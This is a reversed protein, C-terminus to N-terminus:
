SNGGMVPGSAEISHESADEVSHEIREEISSALEVFQQRYQPMRLSFPVGGAYHEAIERSFPIRMLVPIGNERCYRDVGEDGIDSRNLVVGFPIGLIRLVGVAARLDSLGFPTPETVLLCYESGKVAAVVPCSTGPPADIIVTRDAQLEQRVQRVLPPAMAEGINLRGDAFLMDGAAGSRVVGIMRPQESIAHQPCLMACAGCGHCLQEFLLVEGQREDNPRIVALANYACVKACTGCHTCRQEDVRPVLIVAEKEQVIEPSVFLHANPEETDCDLLQVHELSLALNVAITTKGTGGKGSAVSLIM